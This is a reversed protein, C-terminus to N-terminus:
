DAVPIASESASPTAVFVGSCAARVTDGDVPVVNTRSDIPPRAVMSVGASGIVMPVAQYGSTQYSEAVPRCRLSEVATLCGDFRPEAVRLDGLELLRSIDSATQVTEPLGFGVPGMGPVHPVTDLCESVIALGGTCAQYVECTASIIRQIANREGNGVATASSPGSAQQSSCGGGVALMSLAAFAGLYRRARVNMM